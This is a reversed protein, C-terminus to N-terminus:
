RTQLRGFEVLVPVGYHRELDDRCRVRRKFFENTLPIGFALIVAAIFGLLLLPLVRPARATMPPTARSVVEVNTYPGGAAAFIMQDYDDLARRYVTRASELELVYKESEERLREQSLVTTRQETVARQLKLELNQAIALASQANAAYRSSLDALRHQSDEVQQQSERIGPYEATYTRNLQALHAEQAALDAKMSQVQSSSLVQDSITPDQSARAEAIRRANQAELLRTELNTLLVTEVNIKTGDDIVKNSENFATLKQQAQDVKSKLEDLQRGYRRAREGPPGAARDKDQEKYVDAVTNAVLAAQAANNASFTVYILQSGIQSPYVTLKKSVKSAVWERLTGRDELYGRVYDHDQTLKLRDVVALLVGSTQMLEVQTAIYSAVQGVPLDKGNLPDNVEYNVMLTVTGTYTRPWLSVVGVTSVLVLCFVLLSLRRYAWFIAIIQALSLGPHLFNAPIAPTLM